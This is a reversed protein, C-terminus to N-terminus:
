NVDWCGSNAPCYEGTWEMITGYPCFYVTYVRCDEFNCVPIEMRKCVPRIKTNKAQIDTAIAGVFFSGTLVCVLLIALVKKM